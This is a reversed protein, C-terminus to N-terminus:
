RLRDRVVSHLVDRVVALADRTTWVLRLLPERDRRCSLAPSTFVSLGESAFDRHARWLHYPDSVVIVRTWGHERCIAAANRANERTNTSMAELLLDSAPVGHEIALSSAVLAETPPYKGLGGTCIIKPAFHHQYLDVARLTRARLSDGPMGTRTVSSGLIIIAQANLEKTAQDTHGYADIYVGLWVFGGLALLFVVGLFQLVGHRRRPPATPAAMEADLAHATDHRRDDM